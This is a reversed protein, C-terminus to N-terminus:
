HVRYTSENVHKMPKPTLFTMDLSAHGAARRAELPTAGAEQRWMVNLRRFMHMVFGERYIGAAEASPRFVHQQLDRDDIM